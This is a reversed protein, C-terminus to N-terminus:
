EDDFLSAELIFLQEFIATLQLIKAAAYYSGLSVTLDGKEMKQLTARAVGIRLAFANMTDTPFRQERASRLQEGLLPLNMTPDKAKM